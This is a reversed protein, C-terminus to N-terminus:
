FDPHPLPAPAEYPYVVEVSTQDRGALAQGDQITPRDIQCGTLDIVFAAVIPRLLKGLDVFVVYAISVSAAVDDVDVAPKDRLVLHRREEVLIVM